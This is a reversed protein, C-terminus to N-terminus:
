PLGERVGGGGGGGLEVRPVDFRYNQLLSSRGARGGGGGGWVIGGVRRGTIM